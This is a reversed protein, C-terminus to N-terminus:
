DDDGNVTVIGAREFLAADDEDPDPELTELTLAAADEDGWIEQIKAAIPDDADGMFERQQGPILGEAPAQSFLEGQEAWGSAQALEHRSRQYRALKEQEMARLRLWDKFAQKSIDRAAVDDLVASIRLNISKRESMLSEIEIAMDHVFEQREAASAQPLLEVVNSSADRAAQRQAEFDENFTEATKAKRNRAM